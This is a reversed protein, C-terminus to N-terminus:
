ALSKGWIGTNPLWYNGSLNFNKMKLQFLIHTTFLILQGGDVQWYMDYQEVNMGSLMAKFPQTGMVPVAETPWWVNTEIGSDAQAARTTAISMSVLLSLAVFLLSLFIATVQRQPTRRDLVKTIARSSYNRVSSGPNKNTHM